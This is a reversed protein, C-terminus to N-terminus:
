RPESCNTARLLAKASDLNNRSTGKSKKIWHELARIEQQAKAYHPGGKSVSGGSLEQRVAGATRGFIQNVTRFLNNAINGLKTDTIRMM